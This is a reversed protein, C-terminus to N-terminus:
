AQLLNLHMHAMLAHVKQLLQKLTDSQFNVYFNSSASDFYIVCTGADDLFYIVGPMPMPMPMPKTKRMKKVSPPPLGGLSFFLLFAFGIGIGIGPTM